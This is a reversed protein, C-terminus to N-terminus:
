KSMNKINYYDILKQCNSLLEEYTGTNKMNNVEITVWQLNNIHNTGGDCKPIIHDLSANLGPILAEGSITCLFNQSYLLQELSRRIEKRSSGISVNSLNKLWCNFCASGNELKSTSTCYKCKTDELTLKHISTQINPNYNTILKCRMILENYTQKYKMKNACLTVWQVNSIDNLGGRSKPIIHDLSANTGPILIDGTLACKYDQLELLRILDNMYRTKHFTHNSKERMWCTFCSLVNDLKNPSACEVCVNNHIRELRTEKHKKAQVLSCKNCYYNSTDAKPNGCCGCLGNAINKAKREKTQQNFCLNCISRDKLAYDINCRICIKEITKNISKTTQTM